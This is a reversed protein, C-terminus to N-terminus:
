SISPTGPLRPPGASDTLSTLNGNADFTLNPTPSNFRIQENAADYSAQVADPLDTATGNVRTISIRNGAADYPARRSSYHADLERVGALRHAPRNGGTIM